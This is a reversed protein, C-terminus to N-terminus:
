QTSSRLPKRITVSLQGVRDVANEELNIRYDITFSKLSSWSRFVIYLSELPQVLNQKLKKVKFLVKTGEISASAPRSVSYRPKARVAEILSEFVGFSLNESFAMVARQSAPMSRRSFVRAFYETPTRLPDLPFMSWRNRLDALTYVQFSGNFALSCDIDTATGTGTNSLSLDIRVIRDSLEGKNAKYKKDSRQKQVEISQSGGDFGLEVIAARLALLSHVSKNLNKRVFAEHNVKWQRLVTAPFDLGNNKDILDACVTCLFIANSIESREPQTLSADFRPGGPSAATIHAARGVYISKFPDEESPCLTLARCDPKSCIYSARKALATTVPASFEHRSTSRRM